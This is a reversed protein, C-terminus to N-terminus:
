PIKLALQLRPIPTLTGLLDGTLQNEVVKATRSPSASMSQCNDGPAAECSAVEFPLYNYNAVLGMSWVMKGDTRAGRTALYNHPGAAPDFRQIAFDGSVQAHAERTAVLSAFALCAAGVIRKCRSAHPVHGASNSLAILTRLKRLLTLEGGSRRRARFRWVRCFGPLVGVSRSRVAVSMPARM